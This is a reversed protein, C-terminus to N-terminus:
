RIVYVVLHTGIGVGGRFLHGQMLIMLSLNPLM